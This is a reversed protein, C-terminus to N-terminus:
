IMRRVLEALKPNRGLMGKESFQRRLSTKFGGRPPSLRFFPRMGKVQSLRIHESLMKDALDPFGGFGMKALFGSDVRSRTSIMGRKELLTALLEGDIPAWAVYDKCLRLMGVTAPDDTVVSASFKREVKLETLAKRVATTSNIKGHINLVLLLEM